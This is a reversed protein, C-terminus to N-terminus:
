PKSAILKMIKKNVEETKLLEAQRSYSKTDCVVTKINFELVNLAQHIRCLEWKSFIAVSNTM